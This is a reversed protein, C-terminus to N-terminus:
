RGGSYGGTVFKGHCKEPVYDVVATQGQWFDWDLAKPVPKSAFPGERLGRPLWVQAQEIKGVRGNRVLECALRFTKDSRQQMGTQLHPGNRSRPWLM